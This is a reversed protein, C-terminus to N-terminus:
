GTARFNSPIASALKMASFGLTMLSLHLSRIGVIVVIMSCILPKEAVPRVAICTGRITHTYLVVHLRSSHLIAVILLSGGIWQIVMINTCPIADGRVVNAVIRVVLLVTSWHEGQCHSRLHLDPSIPFCVWNEWVVWVGVIRATLNWM